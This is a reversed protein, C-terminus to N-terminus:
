NQWNIRIYRLYNSTNTILFFYINKNFYFMPKNQNFRLMRNQYNNINYYKITYNYM